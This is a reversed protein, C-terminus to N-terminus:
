DSIEVRETEHTAFLKNLNNIEAKRQSRLLPSSTPTHHRFLLYCSSEAIMVFEKKRTASNKM